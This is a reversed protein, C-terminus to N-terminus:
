YTHVTRRWTEKINMEEKVSTQSIQESPTKVPVAAYTAAPAQAQQKPPYNSMGSGGVQQTELHQQEPAAGSKQM